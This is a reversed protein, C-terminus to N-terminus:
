KEYVKKFTNILSEINKKGIPNMSHVYCTPLKYIKNDLLYDILWKMCHYGTKEVYDNYDLQKIYHIDALDHDFSIVDPVGNMIIYNQFEDFNRVIDWGNELYIFNNTYYFTEEVNRIDDLFLKKM